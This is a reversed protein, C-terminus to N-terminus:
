LTKDAYASKVMTTRAKAAAHVRWRVRGRVPPPEARRGVAPRVRGGAAVGASGSSSFSLPGSRSRVPSRMFAM